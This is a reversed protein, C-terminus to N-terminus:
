ANKAAAPIDLIVMFKRYDKPSLAIDELQFAEKLKGECSKAITCRLVPRNTETNNKRISNM